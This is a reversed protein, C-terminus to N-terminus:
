RVFWVGRTGSESIPAYSSATHTVDGSLALPSDHGSSSQEVASDCSGTSIPPSVEPFLASDPIEFKVVQPEHFLPDGGYLRPPPAQPRTPTTEHAPLRPPCIFSSKHFFLEFLTVCLQQILKSLNFLYVIYNTLDCKIAKSMYM